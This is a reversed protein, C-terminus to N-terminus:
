ISSLLKILDSDLDCEFCHTQSRHQWSSRRTASVRCRMSCHSQYPQLLWDWLAISPEKLLSSHSISNDIWCIETKTLIGIELELCNSTDIFPNGDFSEFYWVVDGCIHIVMNTLGCRDSIWWVQLFNTLDRCYQFKVGYVVKTSM